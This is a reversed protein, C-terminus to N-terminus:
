GWGLDSEMYEECLREFLYIAFAPNSNNEIGWQASIRNEITEDVEEGDCEGEYKYKGDQSRIVGRNINKLTGEILYLLQQSMEVYPIGYGETDEDELHQVLFTKVEKLFAGIGSM